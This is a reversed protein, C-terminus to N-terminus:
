PLELDPVYKCDLYFSLNGREVMPLILGNEFNLNKDFCLISVGDVNYEQCKYSSRKKKINSGTYKLYTWNQSLSYSNDLGIHKGGNLVFMSLNSVNKVRRKYNSDKEVCGVTADVWNLLEESPEFEKIGFASEHGVGYVREVLRDLYGLGNIRGRFSARSVKGDIGISAAVVSKVGDLYKSATLGVFNSLVHSYELFDKVGFFVFRSNKLEVVRSREVLKEVLEKQATRCGLDIIGSGLIFEVVMSEENFRLCSNLAPSFKYDVFSRDMRPVGFTYDKGGMTHDILYKIYGKYPHHYLDYLYGRASSNEIDRIDSLLTIGVLARNELTDFESDIVRLVEFVVGAGSLYRGDAEEFGYQNNIVRGIKEDFHSEIFKDGNIHHDMSILNGGGRVIGEVQEATIKFDVAIFDFGACKEYPIQWDHSRNSNIKWKFCKGLRSLFKCVLLGAIVGDIDPDFYVVIVRGRTGFSHILELLGDVGRFTHYKIDKRIDKVDSKIM